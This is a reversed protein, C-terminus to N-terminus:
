KRSPSPRFSTLETPSLAHTVRVDHPQGPLQDVLEGPYLLAIVPTGPRVRTLAREYSGGRRGLRIGSRDVALAPVLVLEATSIADRGAVGGAPVRVGALGTPGWEGSWAAWDLDLDEQLVPLLVGAGADHLGDILASGGPEGPMPAYACILALGHVLEAASRVLAADAEARDSEPM